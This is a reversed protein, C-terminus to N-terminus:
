MPVTYSIKSAYGGIFYLVPLLLMCAGLLQGFSWSNPDASFDGISFHVKAAGIALLWIPLTTSCFSCLRAAHLVLKTRLTPVPTLYCECVQAFLKSMITSPRLMSRSPTTEQHALWRRVDRKGAFGGFSGALQYRAEATLDSQFLLVCTRCIALFLVPMELNVHGFAPAQYNTTTQQLVLVTVWLAVTVFVLSIRFIALRGHARLTQRLANITAIHTVMSFFAMDRAYGLSLSGSNSHYYKPIAIAMILFATLFQQDGLSSVFDELIPQWFAIPDHAYKPRPIFSLLKTAWLAPELKERFHHELSRLGSAATSALSALVGTIM